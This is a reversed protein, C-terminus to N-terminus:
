KTEELDIFRHIVEQLRIEDPQLINLVGSSRVEPLDQWLNFRSNSNLLLNIQPVAKSETADTPETESPAEEGASGEETDTQSDQLRRTEIEQQTSKDRYEQYLLGIQEIFNKWSDATMPHIMQLAEPFVPPGDPHGPSEEPLPIPGAMSPSNSDEQRSGPLSEAAGEQELACAASLAAALLEMSPPPPPTSSSFASSFAPEPLLPSRGSRSSRLSEAAPAPNPSDPRNGRFGPYSPLLRQFWQEETATLDPKVHLSMGKRFIRLLEDKNLLENRTSGNKLSGGVPETPVEKGTKVKGRNRRRFSRYYKSNRRIPIYHTELDKEAMCDSDEPKEDCILELCIAQSSSDKRLGNASKEHHREVEELEETEM